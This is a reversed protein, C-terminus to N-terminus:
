IIPSQFLTGKRTSKREYPYTNTLESFFKTWYLYKRQAWFM